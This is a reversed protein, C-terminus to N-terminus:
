GWNRPTQILADGDDSFRRGMHSIDFDLHGKIMFIMEDESYRNLIFNRYPVGFYNSLLRKCLTVRLRRGKVSLKIVYYSGFNVCCVVDIEDVFDSTTKVVLLSDTYSFYNILVRATLGSYWFNPYDVNTPVPFQPPYYQTKSGSRPHAVDGNDRARKLTKIKSCDDSSLSLAKAAKLLKKNFSKGDFSVVILEICKFLNITLMEPPVHKHYGQEAQLLYQFAKRFVDDKSVLMRNVLRKNLTEFGKIRPYNLMSWGGGQVSFDDPPVEEGSEQLGYIKSIQYECGHYDSRKHQENFAASEALALTGCVLDFLKIAQGLASNEDHAEVDCYIVYKTKILRSDIYLGSTIYTTHYKPDGPDRALVQLPKFRRKRQEVFSM